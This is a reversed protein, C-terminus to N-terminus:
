LQEQERNEGLREMLLPVDTSFNQRAENYSNLSIPSPDLVYGRLTRSLVQSNLELHDVLTDNGIFEQVQDTEKQLTRVSNWVIVFSFISLVIPVAYGGIIWTRIRQQKSSIM